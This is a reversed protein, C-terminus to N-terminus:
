FPGLAHAMAVLARQTQENLTKHWRVLLNAHQTPTFGAKLDVDWARSDGCYGFYADCRNAFRHFGYRLLHVMPGGSAALEDRQADDLQAYVRGDTAAGGVLMVNAFPFFKAYSLPALAGDARRYFAILDHPWEPLAHGFKREFLAGMLAAGEAVETLVLFEPVADSM